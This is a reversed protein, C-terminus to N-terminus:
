AAIGPLPLSATAKGWASILSCRKVRPAKPFAAAVFVEVGASRLQKEVVNRRRVQIALVGYRAPGAASQFHDILDLAVWIVVARTSSYRCRLARARHMGAEQPNQLLMVDTGNRFCAAAAESLAFIM